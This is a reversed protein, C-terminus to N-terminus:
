PTETSWATADGSEFGDEFLAPDTSLSLHDIFAEFSGATIDVLKISCAASQSGPPPAIPEYFSLWLDIDGGALLTAGGSFPSAVGGCAPGDYFYCGLEVGVGATDVRVNGSIELQDGEVRVCQALVFDTGESLTVIRASGSDDSADHDTASHTIEAADDSSLVWDALDCDFHGNALGNRPDTRLRRSFDDGALGDGDGDLPTGGRDVLANSGCAMLRHLAPLLPGELELIAVRTPEDYFVGTIPVSVDDGVPEGCATTQLEVDPGAAILSWNAPNTVDNPDSNGAPDFMPEDFTVAFREVPQAHVTECATLEGDATAPDVSVLAVEPPDADLTTTQSAENDGHDLDVETASVSARNTISSPPKLDISVELSFSVSAGVALDGLSCQPTGVPDEACGVTELRQTGTPLNDTVVVNTAIGPGLNQVTITYTLTEGGPLPDVDDIKDIALNIQPQYGFDVTMLHDGSVVTVEAQHPTATGDADFSPVVGAPLTSTVITVTYPGPPVEFFSYDGDGATVTSQSFSGGDQLVVTVGNLGPEGADQSGDGDVDRWLRNGLAGQLTFTAVVTRGAAVTVECTDDTTTTTSMADCSAWGDFQNSAEAVAVLEVVEGDLYTETCDGSASGASLTCAIGPGSVTGEGTGAGGIRLVRRVSLGTWFGSQVIYSTSSTAGVTAPQSLSADVVYSASTITDGAANVTDQHLVFSSSQPTQGGATSTSLAILPLLLFLWWGGPGSRQRRDPPGSALRTQFHM